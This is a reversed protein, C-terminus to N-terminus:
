RKGFDFRAGLVRIKVGELSGFKPAEEPLIVEWFVFCGSPLCLYRTGDYNDVSKELIESAFPNKALLKLFDVIQKALAPTFSMIDQMIRRDIDLNGEAM